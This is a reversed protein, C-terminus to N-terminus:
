LSPRQLTIQALKYDGRIRHLLRLAMLDSVELMEPGELDTYYMISTSSANHKLGLLHGIEHISTLFLETRTLPAKPNFAVGGQFNQWDVFQSKAITSDVFLSPDGQILQISCSNTDDRHWTMDVIRNWFDMAREFQKALSRNSTSIRVGLDMHEHKLLESSRTCPQCGATWNRPLQDASLSLPVLILYLFFRIM